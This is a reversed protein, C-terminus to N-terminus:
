VFGQVVDLGRHAVQFLFQQLAMKSFRLVLAMVSLRGFGLAENILLYLGISCNLSMQEDISSYTHNYYKINLHVVVSM